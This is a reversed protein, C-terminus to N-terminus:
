TDMFVMQFLFLTIVAVDYSTGTLFFGTGGFLGFSKGFLSISIEHNLGAYSGMTGIAGLGGFMLAFGAIYFGLMGLAYVMFNMSMTHAVNKARTFGTEVMAFGAQMFMVLFGAILTWMMNIAIKNHGVTEMVEALQPSNADKVTVDKATGTAAGSPDNAPAAAPAPAPAQALAPPAVFSVVLALLIGGLLYRIARVSSTM